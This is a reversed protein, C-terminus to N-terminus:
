NIPINNFIIYLTVFNIMEDNGPGYDAKTLM